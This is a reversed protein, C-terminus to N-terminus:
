ILAKLIKRLAKQIDQKGVKMVVPADPPCLDDKRNVRIMRIQATEDARYSPQSTMYNFPFFPFRSSPLMYVTFHMRGEDFELRVNSSTRFFDHFLPDDKEINHFRIKGTRSIDM